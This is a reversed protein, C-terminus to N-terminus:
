SFGPGKEDAPSGSGQKRRQVEPEMAAGFNAAIGTEAILFRMSDARRAMGKCDLSQTRQNMGM